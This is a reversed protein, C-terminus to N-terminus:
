VRFLIRQKQESIIEKKHTHTSKYPASFCFEKRFVTAYCTNHFEAEFVPRTSVVPRQSISECFQSEGMRLHYNKAIKREFIQYINNNWLAVVGIIVVVVFLNYNIQTQSSSSFVVQWDLVPDITCDGSERYSRTQRRDTETAALTQRCM